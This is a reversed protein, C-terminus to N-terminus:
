AAEVSRLAHVRVLVRNEGLQPVQAALAPEGLRTANHGKGRPAVFRTRRPRPRGASRARAATSSAISAVSPTAPGRPPRSRPPIAPERSNSNFPLVPSDSVLFDGRQKEWEGM